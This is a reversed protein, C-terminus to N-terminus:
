LPMTTTLPWVGPINSHPKVGGDVEKEQFKKDIPIM